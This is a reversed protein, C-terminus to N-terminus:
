INCCLVRIRLYNESCRMHEEREKEREGRIFHKFYKQWLWIDHWREKYQCIKVRCTLSWWLCKWQSLLKGSARRCLFFTQSLKKVAKDELPSLLNVSFYCNLHLWHICSSTKSERQSRQTQKVTSNPLSSWAAQLKLLPCLFFGFQVWGSHLECTNVCQELCRSIIRFMYSYRQVGPHQTHRKLGQQKKSSSHLMLCPNRGLMM